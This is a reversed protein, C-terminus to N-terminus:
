KLEESRLGRNITFSRFFHSQRDYSNAGVSPQLGRRSGAVQSVKPDLKPNRNTCHREKGIADVKQLVCGEVEEDSYCEAPARDYASAQPHRESSNKRALTSKM